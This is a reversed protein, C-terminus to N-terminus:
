AILKRLRDFLTQRTKEDTAGIQKKISLVLKFSKGVHRFYGYKYDITYVPHRREVLPKLHPNPSDIDWERETQEYLIMELINKEVLSMNDLAEHCRDYRDNIKKINMKIRDILAKQHEVIRFDHINAFTTNYNILMEGTIFPRNQISEDSCVFEYDEINECATIHFLCILVFSILCVRVLHYM